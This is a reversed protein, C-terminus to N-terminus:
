DFLCGVGGLRAINVEEKTVDLSDVLTVMLNNKGKGTNGPCGNAFHASLGNTIFGVTVDLSTVLGDATCIQPQAWMSNTATITRM